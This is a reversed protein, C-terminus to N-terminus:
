KSLFYQTFSRIALALLLVSAFVLLTPFASEGVQSLLEYIGGADEMAQYEAIAVLVWTALYIIGSRLHVSRDPTEFGQHLDNGTM